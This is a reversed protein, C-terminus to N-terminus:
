KLQRIFNMGYGMGYYDNGFKIQNGNVVGTKDLIRPYYSNFVLYINPHNYTYTGSNNYDDDGYVTAQVTFTNTSFKIICVNGNDSSKWITGDLDYIGDIGSWCDSESANLSQKSFKYDYKQNYYDVWANAEAKTGWIYITSTNGDQKATLKWCKEKPLCSTFGLSVAIISVWFFKKM